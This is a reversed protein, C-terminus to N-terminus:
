KFIAIVTTLTMIATLILIWKTLVALAQNYKETKLNNERIKKTLDQLAFKLRKDLVAKAGDRKTPMESAIYDILENDSKLELKNVFDSIKEPEM